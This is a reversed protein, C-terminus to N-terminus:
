ALMNVGHDPRRTGLELAAQESTFAFRRKGTTLTFAGHALKSNLCALVSGDPDEYRLGALDSTLSRFSASLHADGQRLSSIARDRAGPVGFDFGRRLPAKGNVSRGARSHAYDARGAVETM